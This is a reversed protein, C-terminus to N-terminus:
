CDFSKSVCYQKGIQRGESIEVLLASVLRLYSAVNPFIGVVRTRGHIEKNILEQSNTTWVSRRHEFPFDFVTFGEALNDELWASLKPASAEYKRITVQLFEEATKRDPVNIISRIDAAVEMRMAQKPVYTGANQQLHFQCRQWLVSGIAARRVAWLGFHDDSAVLKVGDM